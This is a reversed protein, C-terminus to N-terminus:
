WWYHQTRRPYMYLYEHSLGRNQREENNGGLCEVDQVPRQERWCGAGGCNYNRGSSSLIPVVVTDKRRSTM